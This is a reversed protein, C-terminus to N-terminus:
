REWGQRTGPTASSCGVRHEQSLSRLLGQTTACGPWDWLAIPAAGRWGLPAPLLSHLSCLESNALVPLQAAPCTCPQLHHISGHPSHQHAAPLLETRPPAAGPSLASSHTYTLVRGQLHKPSRHRSQMWGQEMGKERVPAGGIWRDMQRGTWGGTRGDMWRGTQCGDWGGAPAAEELM